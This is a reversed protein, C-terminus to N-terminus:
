GPQDLIYVTETDAYAVLFKAVNDDNTDRDIILTADSGPVYDSRLSAETKFTDVTEEHNAGLHRAVIILLVKGAPVPKKDALVQVKSGPVVIVFTAPSPAPLPQGVVGNLWGLQIAGILLLGVFGACVLGFTFEVWLRRALAWVAIVALVLWFVAGSGHEPIHVRGRYSMEQVLVAGIIAALAIWVRKDIVVARIVSM